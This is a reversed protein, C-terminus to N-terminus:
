CWSPVPPGICVIIAIELPAQKIDAAYRGIGVYEVDFGSGFRENLIETLQDLLDDRAQTDQESPKFHQLPSLFWSVVNWHIRAASVDLCLRIDSGYDPKIKM